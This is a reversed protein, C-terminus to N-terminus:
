QQPDSPQYAVIYHNSKPVARNESLECELVFFYLEQDLSQIMTVQKKGFKCGFMRFVPETWILVDKRM